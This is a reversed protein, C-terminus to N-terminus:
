ATVRCELAEFDFWRAVRAEELAELAFYLAQSPFVCPLSDLAKWRELDTMTRPIRWVRGNEYTPQVVKLPLRGICTRTAALDHIALVVLDYREFQYGRDYLELDREIPFASGLNFLKGTHKNVIIGNSGIERTAYAFFWGERLERVDGLVRGSDELALERARDADITM